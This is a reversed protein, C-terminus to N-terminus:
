TIDNAIYGKGIRTEIAADLGFDSLKKRLRNINVTLTNDSIFAEDDWLATIIEDRSVIENRHKLLIELILMETKSIYIVEGDRELVGKALDVQINGWTMTRKEELNFQYVRRYVAKLKAILVNTYFPKQIFDDAGLEMSMVQDM